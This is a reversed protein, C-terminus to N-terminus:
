TSEPVSFSEQAEVVDVDVRGIVGGGDVIGGEIQEFTFRYALRQRWPAFAQGGEHAHTVLEMAELAAPRVSVFGRGRLTARAARLKADVARSLEDVQQSRTAWVDLTMVGAVRDGLVDERMRVGDPLLESARVLRGFGLEDDRHAVISISIAPLHGTATPRRAAISSAPLVPAPSGALVEALRDAVVHM